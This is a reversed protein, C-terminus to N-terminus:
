KQRYWYMQLDGKPSTQTLRLEDDDPKLSGMDELAKLARGRALPAFDDPRKSPDFTRFKALSEYVKGERRVANAAHGDVDSATFSVTHEAISYKGTVRCGGSYFVFSKDARLTLNSHENRAAEDLPMDQKTPPRELSSQWDGIVFQDMSIKHLAPIPVVVNCASACVLAGLPLLRLASGNRLNLRTV